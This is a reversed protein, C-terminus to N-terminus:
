GRDRGHEDDAKDGGPQERDALRDADDEARIDSRGNGRLNDGKGDVLVAQQKDGRTEEGLHQRSLYADLLPARGHHAEAQDEEAHLEHTDRGTREPMVAITCLEDAVVPM